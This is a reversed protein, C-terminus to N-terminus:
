EEISPHNKIYEIAEDTNMHQAELYISIEYNLSDPSLLLNGNGINYTYAWDQGLHSEIISSLEKELKNVREQLTKIKSLKKEFKTM